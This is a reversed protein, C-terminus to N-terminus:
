FLEGTRFHTLLSQLKSWQLGAGSSGSQLNWCSSALAPGHQESVCTLPCISARGVVAFLWKSIFLTSLCAPLCVEKGKDKEGCKSNSENNIYFM